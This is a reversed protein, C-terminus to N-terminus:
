NFVRRYTDIVWFNTSTGVSTGFTITASNSLSVTQGVLAGIQGSNSVSVRSWRAYLISHAADSSNSMNITIENRSDFLDQGTVSSCDPSCDAESWYTIIQFGTDSANEVLGSNNSLSVAVSPGDVMITPMTEGVSDSVILKSLNSTTLKGTIWIDGEVTVQCQGSITVDGNIKLNAPWTKTGSSCSAQNGTQESAIASVLGNRDHAPLDEPVVGSSATLGPNSMGSTTVQNNASVDGYIHALNDISIPEGNESPDCLQPYDSTVPNPCNQHAVEMDVSNTALGIQASNSMEVEGNVKINGGLIKSNNSMYLGGVGTVVSFDGSGVPRLGIILNITSEPTSSSIPRYSRGTVNATKYNTESNTTVTVDYTTRTDGDNHLEIEGSTGTWESNQNIEYLSRDAGADAAIQAHTQLQDRKAIRFSSVSLSLYVSTVLLLSPLILIMALLASGKQNNLLKRM